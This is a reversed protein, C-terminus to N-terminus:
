HCHCGGAACCAGGGQPASATFPSEEARGLAAFVSIVRKAGQHGEPCALGQQAQAMPRLAEFREECTPCYFEYLPM